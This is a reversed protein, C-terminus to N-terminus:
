ETKPSGTTEQSGTTVEEQEIEETGVMYYRKIFDRVKDSEIWGMDLQTLIRDIERAQMIIKNALEEAALSTLGVIVALPNRIHDGLIAFQEINKEIQELAKRKAVEMQKRDTIDIFSAMICVPKGNDDNVMNAWLIVYFPSRDVKHLILEGLWSGHESLATRLEEVNKSGGIFQRARKGIFERDDYSGMMKLLSHNVYTITHDLDLMAIANISSRIAHDKIVLEEEAKKRDSIDVLACVFTNDSLTGGSLLVWRHGGMKTYFRTEFTEVSGVRNLQSFFLERETTDVWLESFTLHTLDDQNYGLVSAFRQNVEVITLDKVNVLGTGAETHNFIGRYKMESKQMHIALSSIVAAVGVFVVCKILASVLLPPSGNTIIFVITFYAASVIFSYIMGRNPYWYAAIAIPVYLLHAAVDSTGMSISLVNILLALITTNVIIFLWMDVISEERADYIFQKTMANGDRIDYRWCLTRMRRQGQM